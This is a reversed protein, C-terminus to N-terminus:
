VNRGVWAMNSASDSREGGSCVGNSHGRCRDGHGGKVLTLSLMKLLNQSYKKKKLLESASYLCWCIFKYLLYLPLTFRFYFVFKVFVQTYIKSMSARSIARYCFFCDAYSLLM